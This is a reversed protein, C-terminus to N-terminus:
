LQILYDNYHGQEGELEHSEFGELLAGNGRGYFSRDHVDGISKFFVYDLLPPAPVSGAKKALLTRLIIPTTGVSNGQRRNYRYHLNSFLLFFPTIKYSAIAIDFTVSGQTSFPPNWVYLIFYQSM